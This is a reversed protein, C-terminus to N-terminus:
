VSIKNEEDFPVLLCKRSALYDCMHVFNQYKTKPPELVENGDYDTIWPGMHTKIVESMFEADEKNLGIEKQNDKIFNAMLIPHDFRTYKEKPNGCKLGDHVLLSMLMLDKERSTYKGGISPDSLLEFGIRMAAKSHRLLGGEGLAYGPHYKGTSSAAEHFWYEPLMEIIKLLCDSYTEDQIYDLEDLFMEEKEM